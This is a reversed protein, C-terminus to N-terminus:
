SQAHLITSTQTASHTHKHIHTGCLVYCSHLTVNMQRPQSKIDQKRTSNENMDNEIRTFKKKRERNTQKKIESKVNETKEWYKVHIKTM